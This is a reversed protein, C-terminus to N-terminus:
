SMRTSQPHESAHIKGTQKGRQLVNLEPQSPGAHPANQSSAPATPHPHCHIVSAAQSLSIATTATYHICQSSGSQLRSLHCERRPCGRSDRLPRLLSTLDVPAAMQTKLGQHKGPTQSLLHDTPSSRIFSYIIFTLANGLKASLKKM